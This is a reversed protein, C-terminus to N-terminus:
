RQGLLLRQVQIDDFRLRRVIKESALAALDHDVGDWPLVSRPDGDCLRRLRSFFRGELRGEDDVAQRMNAARRLGCPAVEFRLCSSPVKTAVDDDVTPIWLAINNLKLLSLLLGTM